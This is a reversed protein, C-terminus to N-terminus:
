YLKCALTCASGGIGATDVLCSSSDSINKVTCCVRQGPTAGLGGGLGTYLTIGENNNGCPAGVGSGMTCKAPTGGWTGGLAACMASPQLANNLDAFNKNVQAASLPTNASFTYTVASYVIVSSTLGVLAVLTLFNRRKVLNLWRDSIEIQFKM